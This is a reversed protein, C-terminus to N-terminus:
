PTTYNSTNFCSKFTMDETDKSTILLHCWFGWLSRREALEFRRVFRWVFINSHYFLSLEFSDAVVLWQVLSWKWFHRFADIFCRVKNPKPPSTNVKDEHSSCSYLSDLFSMLQVSGKVPIIASTKKPNRTNKNMARLHPLCMEVWVLILNPTKNVGKPM